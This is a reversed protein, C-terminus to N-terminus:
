FNAEIGYVNQMQFSIQDPSEPIGAGPRNYNDDKTLVLPEITSLHYLGNSDVKVSILGSTSVWTSENTRDEDSFATAIIFAVKAGNPTSVSNTNDVLTYNGTGSVSMHLVLQAGAYAGNDADLTDDRASTIIRLGAANLQGGLAPEPMSYSASGIMWTIPADIAVGANDVTGSSNVTGGTNVTSGTDVTGSADVAGGADVTGNANVTGNTGGDGGSSSCAILAVSFLIASSGRILRNIQLYM